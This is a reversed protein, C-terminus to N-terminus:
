SPKVVTVDEAPSESAATAVFPTEDATTADAPPACAATPVEPPCTEIEVPAVLAEALIAVSPPVEAPDVAAPVAVDM